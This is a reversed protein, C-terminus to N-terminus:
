QKEYFESVWKGLLYIGLFYKKDGLEPCDNTHNVIWNIKDIKNKIRNETFNFDAFHAQHSPM